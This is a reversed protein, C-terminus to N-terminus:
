FHQPVVFPHRLRTEAVICVGMIVCPHSFGNRLDESERM